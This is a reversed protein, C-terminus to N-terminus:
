EAAARAEARRARARSAIQWRVVDVLLFALLSVGMVPLAYGLGAAVLVSGIKWLPSLAQWAKVVTRAPTGPAPRRKWWLSYGYVISMCLASGLAVMVIQNILGFKIGMHIDIGWRILKPIITFTDFDARSTITMTRPDIAITDVQTPTSRDYERVMWAKEPVKSPRIEMLPSDIGGKIATAYVADILAAPDPVAGAPTNAVAAAAMHQAHDAHDASVAPAAPAAPDIKLSVSPTVWGLSMRLADINDGAYKSWTLGTISLFALGLAVWLGTTSHLRRTRAVPTIRAGSAVAAADGKRRSLWLVVGGLTALWLWSAALESYNRGLDGLMLNRHFKDIALRLPLVGSTGYVTLDGRIELTVPDVFVAQTESEGLKPDTFMVRTTRGPATAPRVAFVPRGDKLYARAADVQDGLSRAPGTSPTTLADRFLANEIQPTLVYLVGTVAAILIFPGVFLGVYFHLRLIFDLIERRLGASPAAAPTGVPPVGSPATTTM